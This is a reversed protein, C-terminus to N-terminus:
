VTVRCTEGSRSAVIQVPGGALVKRVEFSGSPAVTRSTGSALLAGSRRITWTWSVGNRNQDVEFEVERGSNEAKAKAKISSSGSCTGRVLIKSCKATTDSASPTTSTSTGTADDAGGSQRDHGVPDDAGQRATAIGAGSLALAGAVSAILLRRSLQDATNM